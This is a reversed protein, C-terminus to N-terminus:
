AVEALAAKADELRRAACAVERGVEFRQIASAGAIRLAECLHEAALAVERVIAALEKPTKMAM